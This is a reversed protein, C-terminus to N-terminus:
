RAHVQGNRNLLSRRRFLLVDVAAEDFCRRFVQPSSESQGSTRDVVDNPNELSMAHDNNSQRLDIVPDVCEGHREFSARDDGKSVVLAISHTRAEVSAMLCDVQRPMSRRCFSTLSKFSLGHIEARRNERWSGVDLWLQGGLTKVDGAKDFQLQTPSHRDSCQKPPGENEADESGVSVLLPHLVRRDLAPALGITFRTGVSLNLL